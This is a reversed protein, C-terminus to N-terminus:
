VEVGNKQLLPIVESTKYYDRKGVRYTPVRLAKLYKKVTDHHLNMSRSLRHATTFLTNM